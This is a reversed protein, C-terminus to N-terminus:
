VIIQRLQILNTSNYKATDLPMANPNKKSQTHWVLIETCNSALLEIETLKLPSLSKLFGDEEYGPKFPMSANPRSLLFRVSVSFSAMDVPYKRGGNWGDYFGALTGNKVIPTSVGYKTILGVPWMSVKKTYRMEDFIEVDYTNDDDAFYLVGETANARIWELARNRNSVGRPKVKNKRYKEPMPALLHAFPINLKLLLKTVLQTTDVADEVVLWFINPVHKLTYGLRTLEALQEPRRYTPTIIYIPPLNPNISSTFSKVSNTNLIPSHNNSPNHQPMVPTSTSTPSVKHSHKSTFSQKTLNNLSSFQNSSLLDTSSQTTKNNGSKDTPPLNTTTTTTSTSSTTIVDNISQQQLSIMRPIAMHYQYLFICISSLIFTLYLTKYSTRMKLSM